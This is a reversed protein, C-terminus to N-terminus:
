RGNACLYPLTKIAPPFGLPFGDFPKYTKTDISVARALEEHLPLALVVVAIRPRRRPLGLLVDVRRRQVVEVDRAVHQPPQVQVANVHAGQKGQGPLLQGVRLADFIRSIALM